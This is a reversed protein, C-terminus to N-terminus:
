KEDCKQSSKEDSILFALPTLQKTNEEPQRPRPSQEPGREERVIACGQRRAEDYGEKWRRFRAAAALTQKDSESLERM